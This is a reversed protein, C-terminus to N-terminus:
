GFIKDIAPHRGDKRKFFYPEFFSPVGELRAMRRHYVHYAYLVM